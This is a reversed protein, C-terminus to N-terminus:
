LGASAKVARVPEHGSDFLVAAMKPAGIAQPEGRPHLPCSIGYVLTQLGDRKGNDISVTAKTANCEHLVVSKGIREVFGVVGHFNHDM